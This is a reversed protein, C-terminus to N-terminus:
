FIAGGGFVLLVMLMVVALLAGALNMAFGYLSCTLARRPSRLGQLGNQLTDMVIFSLGAAYVAAAGFLVLTLPWRTPFASAVAVLVVVILFADFVLLALDALVLPVALILALSRHLRM